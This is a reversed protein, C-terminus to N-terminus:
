VKQCIEEKVSGSGYVVRNGGGKGRGVGGGGEEEVEEEM